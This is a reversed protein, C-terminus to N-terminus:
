ADNERLLSVIEELKADIEQLMRGIGHLLELVAPDSRRAACLTPPAARPQPWASDPTRV